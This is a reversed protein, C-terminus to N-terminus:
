DIIYEIERITHKWLVFWFNGDSLDSDESSNQRRRRRRRCRRLRQLQKSRKKKIVAKAEQSDNVGACGNVLAVTNEGTCSQDSPQQSSNMADRLIKINNDGASLVTLNLELSSSAITPPSSFSPFSISFVSDQIHHIVQQVLQSFMALTFAVVASVQQSGAPLFLFLADVNTDDCFKKKKKKSFL